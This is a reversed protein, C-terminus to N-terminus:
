FKVENILKQFGAMMTPLNAQAIKDTVMSPVFGKFKVDIRYIAKTRKKGLGEFTWSGSNSKMINSDDLSWEIKSFPSEKMSLVYFFTKIIYLEYRVLQPNNPKKKPIVDIKQVCPLYKPYLDYRRIANFVLEPTGQFVKEIELEALTEGLM